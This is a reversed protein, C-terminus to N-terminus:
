FGCRKVLTVENGSVNFILEDTFSAMLVLGQGSKTDLLKPDGASPVESTDFGNGDDQVIIRIEEKSVTADVRVRRDKYPATKKRTEILDTTADDYVIARHTPTVSPGLELNGRYMANIIAHELAVGIRVLETGSILEM